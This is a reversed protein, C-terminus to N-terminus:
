EIKNKLWEIIKETQERYYQEFTVKKRFDPSQKGYLVYLVGRLRQAQTKSRKEEPVEDPLTSIDEQKIENEKFLFWGEKQELDFLKAKEDGTLRDSSVYVQIKLTRDRLTSVGEISGPAQFLRDM